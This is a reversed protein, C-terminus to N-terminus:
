NLSRKSAGSDNSLNLNLNLTLILTLALTLSPILTLTLSRPNLILDSFWLNTQNAIPFMIDNWNNTSFIQFVSAMSRPMTNFTAQPDTYEPETNGDLVGCFALNGIAAFSYSIVTILLLLNFIIQWYTDVLVKNLEYLRHFWRQFGELTFIRFVMIMHVCAELQTSYFGAFSDLLITLIQFAASTFIVVADFKIVFSVRGALYKVGIFILGCAIFVLNIIRLVYDSQGIIPERYVGIFVLNAFILLVNSWQWWDKGDLTEALRNWMRLDWERSASMSRSSVDMSDSGIQGLNGEFNFVSAKDHVRHDPEEPKSVSLDKKASTKTLSMQHTANKGETLEQKKDCAVDDLQSYNDVKKEDGGGADTNAVGEANANDRDMTISSVSYAKEHENNIQAIKSIHAKNGSTGTLRKKASARSKIKRNKISKMSWNSKPVKQDGGGGMTDDGKTHQDEMALTGETHPDDVFGDNLKEVAAIISKSKITRPNKQPSPPADTPKATPLANSKPTPYFLAKSEITPNSVKPLTPHNHSFVLRCYKIFQEDSAYSTNWVVAGRVDEAADQALLISPGDPAPADYTIDCTLDIMINLRSTDISKSLNRALSEMKRRSVAMIHQSKGDKAIDIVEVPESLLDFAELCLKIQNKREIVAATTITERYSDIFTGIVASMILVVMISFYSWFYLIAIAQNFALAPYLCNPYNETTLLVFLSIMATEFSDFNAADAWQRDYLGSFLRVGLFSYMVIIILFVATLEGLRGLTVFVTTAVRFLDRKWFILLLPRLPKAWRVPLSQSIETSRADDYQPLSCAFVLADLSLCVVMILAPLQKRSKAMNTAGISATHLIITFIYVCICLLDIATFFGLELLSVMNSSTRCNNTPDFILIISHILITIQLFHRFCAGRKIKLAAQTTPDQGCSFAKGYKYGGEFADKVHAIARQMRDEDSMPAIRRKHLWSFSRNTMKSYISSKSIEGTEHIKIDDTDPSVVGSGGIVSDKPETKDNEGVKAEGKGDGREGEDGGEWVAGPSNNDNRKKKAEAVNADRPYVASKFTNKEFMVKKPRRDNATPNADKDLQKPEPDGEVDQPPVSTSSFRQLSMWNSKSKRRVNKEALGETAMERKREDKAIGQLIRDLDSEEIKHRAAFSGLEASQKLEQPTKPALTSAVAEVDLAGAGERARGAKSWSFRRPKGVPQVPESHQRLFDPRQPNSGLSLLSRGSQAKGEDKRPEGAKHSDNDDAGRPSFRPLAPLSYLQNKGPSSLPKQKMEWPSAGASLSQPQLQPSTLPILANAPLSLLPDQMAGHLVPEARPDQSFEPVDPTVIIELARKKNTWKKRKAQSSREEESEEAVELNGLASSARSQGSCLEASSHGHMDGAERIGRSSDVLSPSALSPRVQLHMQAKVGQNEGEGQRRVDSGREIENRNGRGKGIKKESGRRGRPGPSVLRPVGEYHRRGQKPVVKRPSKGPTKWPDARPSSSTQAAASSAVARSKKTRRSRLHQEPRLPSPTRSSSSPLPEDTQHRPSNERSSNRSNRESLEQKPIRLLLAGSGVETDEKNDDKMYDNGDDRLHSSLGESLEEM